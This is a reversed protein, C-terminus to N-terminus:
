KVVSLKSIQTVSGARFRLYYIGPRLRSGAADAGDWQVHYRGAAQSATVLTRVARGQLDFLALSVPSAGHGAIDTGVSYTLTAGNRAPNPAASELFSLAEAISGAVPGSVFSHGDPESLVIWYYHTGPEAASDVFEFRTGNVPLAGASILERTTFDDSESRFVSATAGPSETVLTLELRVGEDGRAATFNAVATATPSSEPIWLTAHTMEATQRPTVSNTAYTTGTSSGPSSNVFLSFDNVRGNQDVFGGEAVDLFWPHNMSPPLYPTVGDATTFPVSWYHQIHGPPFYPLDAILHFSDQQAEGAGTVFLDPAAPDYAHSTGLRVFLDNDPSDHTISYYATAVRPQIGFQIPVPPEPHSVSTLDVWNVRYWYTHGVVLGPDADVLSYPTRNSVGLISPHGTPVIRLPNIQVFAGPAGSVDPARYVDFGLFPFERQTIWGVTIHGAGLDPVPKRMQTLQVGTLSNIAEKCAAYSDVEGWGSGPDYNPDSSAAYSRFAGKVSPVFHEATNQLISRLQLPTLSPNAQLVLACVGSVCPTSMSTGNLVKYNRGDSTVDGDASVIGAGPALVSPKMEDVHTADGNDTRPGENSFSTVQDDSRDLTLAHSTAGVAISKAAGAPVAIGPANGDNGTAICVVMGSDVAVNVLQEEPDSGDSTCGICGLSMSIIDIGRYTTDPGTLGSWLTRHNAICWELGVGAGGNSAGADTLVKCDVLRARPAVGAFFGSEGGTGMATGAVHTAHYETAAAGHDSPNVSANAPTSLAAVGTEFNGGGLFKGRLSEHGPYGPNAVDISDNVGTDLIAISIGSGDLGLEQRASPFLQYAQAASIGRSDRARVVRSGYHNSAYMVPVAAVRTVGPLAVISQVQAYTAQAEVYDIYRFPYLLVAGTLTLAQTDTALPHHNYGVYVRYTLPPGATVGILMPGSPDGNLFAASFGSAHVSEIRDDIRNQNNDYLWASAPSALTLAFLTGTLALLRRISRTAGPM